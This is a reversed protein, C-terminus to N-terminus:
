PLFDAMVYNALDTGRRTLRVRGGQEKLLGQKKHLEIVEGYVKELEEGFSGAFEKRSVGQTMRLGLFMFEAMMDQKGLIETEREPESEPDRSWIRIYEDTEPNRTRFASHMGTRYYSSAGAGFGAYDHGTWYGTNHRSPYGDRAYNSIEYRHYGNKELYEGTFYYMRRDEDDGPLPPLIGEKDWESFVTGEEIILSYASIHEPSLQVAEKLTREWSAFDQGPLASILDLSVNDFGASRASKIINKADAATHIRGLLRLMADDFSQVGVSLRGIGVSRLASLKQEDATGPNCEMTIEADPLIDYYASLTDLIKEALSPEMLSPTGGGFFVTDVQRRKGQLLSRKGEFAIEKLLADMYLQGAQPSAMPGSLFDCYNCKRVCYPYHIYVSLPRGARAKENGTM